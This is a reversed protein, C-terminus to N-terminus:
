FLKQLIGLQALAALLAGCIGIAWTAGTAFAIHKELPKIKEDVMDIRMEALDTRRIHVDLSATNAIMTIKIDNIDTIVRDLKDEFRKNDM